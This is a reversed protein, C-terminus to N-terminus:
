APSTSSCGEPSTWRDAPRPRIGFAELWNDAARRLVSMGMPLIPRRMGQM